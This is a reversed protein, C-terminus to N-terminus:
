ALIERFSEKGERTNKLNTILRVAREIKLQSSKVGNVYYIIYRQKGPTLMKFRRMGEEDQALLEKLEPPVDFGYKSEDKKLTVTVTDKLKIGLKKMRANSLNIYGSGNGLAIFGTQFTLNDNLKCVVRVKFTGGFHDIVDPPVELYHGNLHELKYVKSKYTIPTPEKKAM